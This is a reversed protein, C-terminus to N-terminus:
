MSVDAGKEFLRRVAANLRKVVAMYLPTEGEKVECNVNVTDISLTLPPGSLAIVL